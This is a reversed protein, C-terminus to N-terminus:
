TFCEKQIYFCDYYKKQKHNVKIILITRKKTLINQLRKKLPLFPNNFEARIIKPFIIQTKLTHQLNERHNKIAKQTIHLRNQESIILQKVHFM